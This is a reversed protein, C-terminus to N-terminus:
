AAVALLRGLEGLRSNSRARRDRAQLEQFILRPQTQYEVWKPALHAMSLMTNVAREDHGLRAHALARDQLHRAQAALPLSTDSPMDRARTLASTYAETVVHVDVTQMTVQDPGFAVEYDNRNGTHRAIDAAEGLLQAATAGEGDRGAATAGSLLLSGWLSMRPLEVRDGPEISEAASVALRHAEAFRGQTLLVWSFTGRLAAPRWPDTGSGAIRLAERVAIHAADPQGFHVLTCAAVQYLQALCDAAAGSREITRASTLARPLVEGLQDYRGAWYAGWAFMVHRRLDALTTEDAEQDREVLLDDVGTVARRLAVVGAGPGPEPLRTPKRLLEGIEVDLANALRHLYRLSATHRAGQELKRVLDLSVDAAAALQAQTMHKGRLRKLQEGIGTDPDPTRETM